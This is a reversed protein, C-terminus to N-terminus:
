SFLGRRKLHGEIGRRLENFQEESGERPFRLWRKGKLFISLDEVKADDLALPLVTVYSGEIQELLKPELEEKVWNSKKISASSVVVILFESGRLGEEIRALLSDGALIECADYWAAQNVSDLKGHLWDVFAKDESSHSLFVSWKKTEASTM